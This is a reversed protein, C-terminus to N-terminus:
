HRGMKAFADAFPNYRLGDESGYNPHVPHSPRAPRAADNKNSHGAHVVVKKHPEAPGGRNTKRSLGIRKRDRDLSIIKFDLVDGVKVVDMPDKVYSDSLESIHVLASEKLGIDVFAGFDVVNKIKGKVTMGESLDEFTLVGKQMIPKPYGERPDRGPKKLEAMIDNITMEGLHYKETLEKRVDKDLEGMYVLAKKIVRAAEYNEPHVWTNDLPDQSEPIKLFGACQEFCKPGMGPVNKIDERSVIKGKEERYKVIKKATSSNVGSVYKLLSASATNLNVGVNNVVSTVVEDLSDSLKKQNLDHQYLGVGISKPDIKV